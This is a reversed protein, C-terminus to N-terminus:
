LLVRGYRRYMQKKSTLFLRFRRPNVLKLWARLQAVRESTRRQAMMELCDEVLWHFCSEPSYYKEWEERARRGLEAARRRHAELIEPLKPIDKEAVTISCASWDVRAPYVWGDSLIVPCRGIRMAEFLRISGRCVGRPCLAFASQAMSDVYRSYYADRRDEANGRKLAYLTETTDEIWFRDKPLGALRPRIPHSTFAGLFSGLYRPHEQPDHFYLYPNEERRLYYGTRTRAPQYENQSLGAYLGPLIPVSHDDPDFIFCKERYKRFYPHHRIPEAFLGQAGIETFVILDAEAPDSTLTHKGHRDLGASEVFREYAGRHLEEVTKDELAISISCFRPWRPVGSLLVSRGM